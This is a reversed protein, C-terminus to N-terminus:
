HKDPGAESESDKREADPRERPWTWWVIFLLLALALAGEVIMLLLSGMSNMRPFRIYVQFRRIDWSYGCGRYGM